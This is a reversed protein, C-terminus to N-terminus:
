KPKSRWVSLCTLVAAMAFAVGTISLMLVPFDERQLYHNLPKDTDKGITTLCALAAMAFCSVLSVALYRLFKM